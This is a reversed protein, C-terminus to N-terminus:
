APATLAVYWWRVGNSAALYVNANGANDDLIGIYGAGRDAAVGFATVLQAQTPPNATNDDSFVPIPVEPQVLDDLRKELEVIKRVMENDHSM